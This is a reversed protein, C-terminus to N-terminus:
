KERKELLEMEMDIEAPKKKTSRLQKLRAM